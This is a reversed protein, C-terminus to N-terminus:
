IANSCHCHPSLHFLPYVLFMIHALMNFKNYNTELCHNACLVRVNMGDVLNDKTHYNNVTHYSLLTKIALSTSVAM